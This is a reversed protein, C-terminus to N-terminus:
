EYQKLMEKAEEAILLRNGYDVVYQLHAKANVLEGLHIDLTALQIHYVVLDQKLQAQEMRRLLLPRAEEINESNILEKIHLMEIAEDYVAKDRKSMKLNQPLNELEHKVSKYNEDDKLAFYYYASVVLRTCERNFVKKKFSVQQIYSLGEEMHGRMRICCQAQYLMLNNKAKGKKDRQKIFSLIEYYKYPDCDVTLIEALESFRIFGSVRYGVIIMWYLIVMGWFSFGINLHFIKFLIGILLCGLMAVTLWKIKKSKTLYRSFAEKADYLYYKSHEKVKM